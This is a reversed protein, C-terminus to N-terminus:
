GDGVVALRQLRRVPRPAFLDLLEIDLPPKELLGSEQAHVGAAGRARHGIRVAPRVGLETVVHVVLHDELPKAKMIGIQKPRDKAATM